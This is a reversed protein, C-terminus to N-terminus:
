EKANTTSMKSEKCYKKFITEAEKRDLEFQEALKEQETKKPEPPEESKKEKLNPAKKKKVKIKEELPPIVSKVNPSLYIYGEADLELQLVKIIRGIHKYSALHLPLKRRQSQFILKRAEYRVKEYRRYAADRSSVTQSNRVSSAYQSVKRIGKKAKREFEQVLDPKIVTMEELKEKTEQKLEEMDEDM